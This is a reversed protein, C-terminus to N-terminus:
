VQGLQNYFICRAATLVYRSTIVSGSCNGFLKNETTGYVLSAVWSFEDPEIKYGGGILERPYIPSYGCDKPLEHELFRTSIETTSNKKPIPTENKIYIYLKTSLDPYYTFGQVIPRIGNTVIRKRNFQHLIPSGVSHSHGANAAFIGTCMMDSNEIECEIKNLLPIIVFQKATLENLNLILLYGLDILQPMRIPLRVRMTNLGSLTTDNLCLLALNNPMITTPTVCKELGFHKYYACNFGDYRCHPGIAFDGLRVGTRCIFYLVLSIDKM